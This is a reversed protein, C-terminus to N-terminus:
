TKRERERRCVRCRRGRTGNPGNRVMETNAENYPHGAPCHTKRANRGQFTDGRLINEARTVFEFHSRRVCDRRRCLHDITLGPPIQEGEIFCVARHALTTGAFRFRGYGNRDKSATWIWCPGLDPRDEPIPGDRNVKSWFREM